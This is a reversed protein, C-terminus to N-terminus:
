VSHCDRSHSSNAEDPMVFAAHDPQRRFPLLEYLPQNLVPSPILMLSLLVELSISCLSVSMCRFNTLPKLKKVATRAIALDIKVKNRM